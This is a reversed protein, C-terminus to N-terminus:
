STQVTGPFSHFSFCESLGIEIFEGILSAIHWSAIMSMEGGAPDLPAAMGIRIDAQPVIGLGAMEGNVAPFAVPGHRFDFDRFFSHSRVTCRLRAVAVV